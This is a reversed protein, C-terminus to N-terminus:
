GIKSQTYTFGAIPVNAGVTIAVASLTLDPMNGVVSVGAIGDFLVTSNNSQMARFWTATGTSLGTGNTFAGATLVGNAAPGFAATANFRPSALLTNGSLATDASLPQVGNYIHVYGNNCLAAVANAAANAALNSIRPAHAM